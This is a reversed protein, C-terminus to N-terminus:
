PAEARPYNAALYEQLTPGAPKAKAKARLSALIRRSESALRVAEDTDPAKGAVIDAQIAESRVVLAAAQALMARDIASLSGGIEAEFEELLARYREAPLTRGDVRPLPTGGRTRRLRPRATESPPM